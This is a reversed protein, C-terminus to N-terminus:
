TSSYKLVDQQNSRPPIQTPPYLVVFDRKWVKGYVNKYQKVLLFGRHKLRSLINDVTHEKLVTSEAIYSNKAWTSGNRRVLYAIASLVAKENWSLDARLSIAEPVHIFHLLKRPHAM